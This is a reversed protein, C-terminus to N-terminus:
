KLINKAALDKGLRNPIRKRLYSVVEVTTGSDHQEELIALHAKRSLEDVTTNIRRSIKEIQM